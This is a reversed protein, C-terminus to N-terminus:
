LNPTGLAMKLPGAITQIQCTRCAGMGSLSTGLKNSNLPPQLNQFHPWSPEKLLTSQMSDGVGVSSTPCLVKYHWCQLPPSLLIVTDPQGPLRVSHTLPSWLSKPEVTLLLASSFTDSILRWGWIGRHVYACPGAYLHVCIYVCM